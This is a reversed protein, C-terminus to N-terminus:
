SSASALPSAALRARASEEGRIEKLVAREEDNLHDRLEVFHFQRAILYLEEDTFLAWKQATFADRM